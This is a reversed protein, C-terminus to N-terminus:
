LKGVMIIEHINPVWKVLHCTIFVLAIILSIKATGLEKNTQSTNNEGRKSERRGNRGLLRNDLYIFLFHVHYNIVILLHM